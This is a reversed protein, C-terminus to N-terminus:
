FAEKNGLKQAVCCTRYVSFHAIFRLHFNRKVLICLLSLTSFVFLFYLRLKHGYHSRSHFVGFVRNRLPFCHFLLLSDYCFTDIYFVKKCFYTFIKVCAMANAVYFKFRRAHRSLSLDRLTERFSRFYTFCLTASRFRFNCYILNLSM